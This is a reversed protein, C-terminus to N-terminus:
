KHACRGRVARRAAGFTTAAYEWVASALRPRYTYPRLDVGDRIRAGLDRLDLCYTCCGEAELARLVDLQHDDQVRRNPVAIFPRGLRLLEFVTAGGACITLDSRRFEPELSDLYRVWRCSEPIYTGSGIQVFVDGPIGGTSVLRDVEAVLEDFYTTGVTVFIM